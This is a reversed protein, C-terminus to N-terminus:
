FALRPYCSLATGHATSGFADLVNIQRNSLFCSFRGDFVVFGWLAVCLFWPRMPSYRNDSLPPQLESASDLVVLRALVGIPPRVKATAEAAVPCLLADDDYDRIVRHRVSCLMDGLNELSSSKTAYLSGFLCCAVTTVNM